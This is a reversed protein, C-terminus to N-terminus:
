PRKLLYRLPSPLFICKLLYYSLAFYISRHARKWLFSGSILYHYFASSPLKVQDPIPTLLYKQCAWLTAQFSKQLKLETVMKEIKQWDLLSSYKRIFLDIDKLWFLKIFTHQFSLHACLHVLMREKSIEISCDEAEIFLLKSHLEIVVEEGSLTKLWITKFENAEWKDVPLEVYLNERLITEVQQMDKKETLLDIDSLRRAGPDKYIDGILAMGKLPYIKLNQKQCLDNLKHFEQRYIENRIFQKKWIEKFQQRLPEPLQGQWRSYLYGQLMHEATLTQLQDPDPIEPFTSSDERLLQWYSHLDAKKM